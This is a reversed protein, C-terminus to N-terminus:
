NYSAYTGQSNARWNKYSSIDECGASKKGCIAKATSEVGVFTMIFKKM